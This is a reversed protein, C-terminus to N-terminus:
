LRRTTPPSVFFRSAAFAVAGFTAVAEAWFVAGIFHWGREFAEGALPEVGYLPPSIYHWIAFLLFLLSPLAIQAFFFFSFGRGFPIGCSTCRILAAFETLLALGGIIVFPM